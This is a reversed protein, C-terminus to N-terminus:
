NCIEGPISSYKKQRRSIHEPYSYNEICSNKSRKKGNLLRSGCISEAGQLTGDSERVEWVVYFGGNYRQEDLKRNECYNDFPHVTFFQMYAELFEAAYRPNYPQPSGLHRAFTKAGWELTEPMIQACGMAGVRSLAHHNWSCEQETQAMNRSPNKHNIYYKIFPKAKDPVEIVQVPKEEVAITPQFGSCLGLHLISIKCFLNDLWYM